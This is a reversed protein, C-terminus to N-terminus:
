LTLGPIYFISAWALFLGGSLFIFGLWLAYQINQKSWNEFDKWDIYQNKDDWLTEIFVTNVGDLPSPKPNDVESKKAELFIKSGTRVNSFFLDKKFYNDYGGVGIRFRLPNDKLNIDLYDKGGGRSIKKEFNIVEGQITVFGDKSPPRYTFYSYLGFFSIVFSLAAFILLAIQLAKKVKKSM